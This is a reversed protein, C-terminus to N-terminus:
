PHAMLQLAVSNYLIIRHSEPCMEAFLIGGPNITIRNGSTRIACDAGEVRKESVQHEIMRKMEEM